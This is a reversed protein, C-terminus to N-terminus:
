LWSLITGVVQEKSVVTDESALLFGM